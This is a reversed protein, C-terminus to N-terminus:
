SCRRRSSGRAILHRYSKWQSYNLPPLGVLFPLRGRHVGDRKIETRGWHSEERSENKSEATGCLGAVAYLQLAMGGIALLAGVIPYVPLTFLGVLLAIFASLSWVLYTGVGWTAAMGDQAEFGFKILELRNSREVLNQNRWWLECLGSSM